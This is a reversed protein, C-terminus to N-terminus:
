WKVQVAILSKETVSFPMPLPLQFVLPSISDESIAVYHNIISENVILQIEGM